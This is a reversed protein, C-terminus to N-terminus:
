GFVNIAMEILSLTHERDDPRLTTSSYSYSSASASASTSDLDRQLVLRLLLSSLIRSFVLVGDVVERRKRRGTLHLFYVCCFYVHRHHLCSILVTVNVVIPCVSNHALLWGALEEIIDDDINDAVLLFQKNGGNPPVPPHLLVPPCCM